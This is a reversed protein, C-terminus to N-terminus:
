FIPIAVRLKVGYQGSIVDRDAQLGIRLKPSYWFQQALGLRRELPEAMSSVVEYTGTVDGWRGMPLTAAWKNRNRGSDMSFASYRALDSFGGSRSENVWGLRVEDLVTIRYGIQYRWGDAQERAARAVGARWAGWKQTSYEGGIGTMAMESTWELQSDLTLRPSVGYRLVSSGASAGYSFDGPMGAPSHDLAGVMVSYEWPNAGPSQGLQTGSLRIGGLRARKSWSPADTWDNGVVVKTGGPVSYRWNESGLTWRDWSTPADRRKSRPQGSGSSYRWGGAYREISLDLGAALGLGQDEVTSVDGEPVPEHQTVSVEPVTYVHVPALDRLTPNAPEGAHQALAVVSYLAAVGVTAHVMLNFRTM